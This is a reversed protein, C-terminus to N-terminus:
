SLIGRQLQLFNWVVVPGIGEVPLLLDKVDQDTGQELIKENNSMDGALSSLALLRRTAIGVHFDGRNYGAKKLRSFIEPHSWSALNRPDFLGEDELQDFLVLTKTVPYNNVSLLAIVLNGWCRGIGAQLNAGM